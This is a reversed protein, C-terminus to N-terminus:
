REYDGIGYNFNDGHLVVVMDEILVQDHVFGPTFM